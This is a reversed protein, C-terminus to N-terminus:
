YYSCIQNPYIVYKQSLDVDYIGIGYKKNPKM